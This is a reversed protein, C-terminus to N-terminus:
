HGRDSNGTRPVIWDGGDLECSFPRVVRM